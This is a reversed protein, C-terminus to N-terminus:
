LVHHGIGCNRVDPSTASYGLSFPGDITHAANGMAFVVYQAAGPEITAGCLVAPAYGDAVVSITYRDTELGFVVFRGNRDTRVTICESPSCVGVWAGAVPGHTELAYVHGGLAAASDALVAIPAGCLVTLM